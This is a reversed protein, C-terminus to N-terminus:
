GKFELENWIERFAKGFIKANTLFEQESSYYQHTANGEYGNISLCYVADSFYDRESKIVSVDIINGRYYFTWEWGLHHAFFDYTLEQYIPTQAIKDYGIQIKKM